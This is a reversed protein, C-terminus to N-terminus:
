MVQESDTKVRGDTAPSLAGLSLLAQEDFQQWTEIGHKRCFQLHKDRVASYRKITAPSAGGMVPNGECHEFYLQWGEAITPMSAAATSAAEALGLEVAKAEDLRRLNELAMERERTGLSHKGLKFKGGRGDAYFVGDRRFLRWIFYRCSVSDNKGNNM